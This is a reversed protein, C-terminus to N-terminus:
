EAFRRRHRTLKIGSTGAQWYTLGALIFIFGGLYQDAVSSLQLWDPVNSMMMHHHHHAHSHTASYMAPFVFMLVGWILLPMIVTVLNLKQWYNAQHHQRIVTLCLAIGSLAMLWKMVSYLMASQMFLPHLAPLMWIWTLIAFSSMLLTVPWHSAAISNSESRMAHHRLGCIWLLPALHHVMVSQASHLWVSYRAVADFWPLMGGLFVLNGAVFLLPRSLLKNTVAWQHLTIVFIVSCLLDVTTLLM